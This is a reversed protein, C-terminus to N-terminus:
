AFICVKEAPLLSIGGLHVLKMNEHFMEKLPLILEKPSKEIIRFLSFKVCSKKYTLFVKGTILAGCLLKKM